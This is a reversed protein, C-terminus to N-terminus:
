LSCKRFRGLLSCPFFPVDQHQGQGGWPRAIDMEELIHEVNPGNSATRTNPGPIGDPVAFTAEYESDHGSGHLHGGLTYGRWIWAGKTDGEDKKSIVCGALGAVGKWLVCKVANANGGECAAWGM